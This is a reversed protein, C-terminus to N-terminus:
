QKQLPGLAVEVGRPSYRALSEGEGNPEPCFPPRIRHHLSLCRRGRGQQLAGQVSPPPPKAQSEHLPPYTTPVTATYQRAPASFFISAQAAAEHGDALLLLQLQLLRCEYPALPQMEAILPRPSSSALANGSCALQSCQTHEQQTNPALPLAKSGPQGYDLSHLPQSQSHLAILLRELLRFRV